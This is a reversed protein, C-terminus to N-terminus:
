SAVDRSTRFTRNSFFEAFRGRGTGDVPRPKRWRALYSQALVLLGDFIIAMAILIVVPAVIGTKFVNQQLAAYIEAGLGGGGAFTALTAIAITSVTAIRVGAIIEPVALPLEVKWLLQRDTMGMGQGADKSSSPVNALGTVINRYVIQLTYLSLAIVATTNGRGSVPLLLLFLAISPITYIVGTAGVIPPILWRRRHSVLALAFAVVFGIAVSILVIAAHELTPSVYRDLNDALWDFCVTENKAVCSTAADNPNRVFDGGAAAYPLAAALLSIM